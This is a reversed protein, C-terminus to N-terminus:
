SSINLITRFYHNQVIYIERERLLNLFIFDKNKKDLHTRNYKSFYVYETVIITYLFYLLYSAQNNPQLKRLCKNVGMKM